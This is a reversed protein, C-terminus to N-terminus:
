YHTHGGNNKILEQMRDPMTLVLSEILDSESVLVWGLEILAWLDEANRPNGLENKLRNISYSLIAWCSEILNLDPSNSPWQLFTAYAHYNNLHGVTLQSVHPRANDHVILFQDDEPDFLSQLHPLQEDMIECYQFSDLSGNVRILKGYRQRRDVQGNEGPPPLTACVAGHFMVGYRYGSRSYEALLETNHASNKPRSIRHAYKHWSGCWKEDTWCVKRWEDLTRFQHQQAFNLRQQRQGQTLVNKHRIFRRFLGPFFDSFHFNIFFFCHFHCFGLKFMKIVM